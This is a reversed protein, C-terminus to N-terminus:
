NSIDQDNMDRKLDVKSIYPKLLQPVSPNSLKHM